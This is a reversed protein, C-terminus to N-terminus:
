RKEESGVVGEVEDQVGVKEDHKDTDGMAKQGSSAAGTAAATVAAVQYIISCTFCRHQRRLSM